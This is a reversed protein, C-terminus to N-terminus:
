LVRLGAEASGAPDSQFATSYVGANGFVDEGLHKLEGGYDPCAEQKRLIKRTDSPLHAPLAAV